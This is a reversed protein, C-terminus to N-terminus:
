AVPKLMKLLQKHTKANSSAVINGAIKPDKNKWTSIVGGANKILPIM